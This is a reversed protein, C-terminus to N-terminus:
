RGLIDGLRGMVGMGVVAGAFVLGLIVDSAWPPEKYLPRDPSCNTTCKGGDGGMTYTETMMRVQM